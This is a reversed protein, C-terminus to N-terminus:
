RRRTNALLSAGGLFSVAAILLLWIGGGNEGGTDALVYIPKWEAYLTVSETLSALDAEDYHIGTGDPKTNWGVFKMGAIKLGGINGATPITGAGTTSPPAVGATAGNKNYTIKVIPAVAWEAYLTIDATLNYSYAVAYHSGQGDAQTNWGKFLFGAIALSGSNSRLTVTGNGTTAAPATGSTAGNADYTITFTPAWEAYLTIDATLNYSYAVAYNTGQGDAQTNWGQFTYGTKVLSGSNSRLTVSGNGTTVAPATGGTATNADYTITYTILTWEAYLTVDASLTYSGGLDYHVGTANAKTNWGTLTYGARVLTGTNTRLTVSGSGSTVTPETGGTHQNGDYTVLYSNLIWEAYLTADAQLNYSSSVAYHTGQGDAQTNWGQFTYGARVLTGTNARLTVAGNGTTAAPATGGTATNADYTITYINPTWEAYLTVNGTLSYSAGTAYHTGTGNAASNWGTFTYGVRTLTGSNSALTVTGNGTTDAPSTGGNASNPAYTITYTNLTWEAYLTVDGGLTYAAGASYSTGTGNALTNWGAFTYGAKVLTGSNTRLTVAGNGTTVAPVTGGTSGNGNYTITYTNPTWEAYLTVDATLSYSAGTAYHTGTGNALTNWGTLTYGTKALSGSNTALTVGGNGTTNAPNTGSTSGNGNYTITYNSVAASVVFTYEVTPAPAYTGNGGQVNRITCNGPGIITVVMGSVTCVSPSQSIMTVTLNSTATPSLTVTYSSGSYTKNGPNPATITQPTLASIPFTQTVPTAASYTSNGSQTAVITCSGSAVPTITTGSVTCVGPTLSTLTVPLGSDSVAGSAFAPTTPTKTGPNNFTIVQGQTSVLLSMTYASTSYTNGDFVKFQLSRDVSGTFRLNGNTIDAVNIEDNVAVAVWSGNVFKELAGATPLSTIQVKTFPNNDPDSYTGFDSLQIVSPESTTVYRTTNTSVPPQNSPNSVASAPTVGFVASLPKFAIGFYNPSATRDAGVKATFSTVSDFQVQVADQVRNSNNQCSTAYFRTTGVPVAPNTANTQVQLSSGTSLVYSQFSTFDSYQCYASAGSNGDLDISTVSVNRLVVPTGTGPGTYSGGEYFDFKFTAAGYAASVDTNVQFYDTNSSANGINDYNTITSSTLTTTVIADITIGGIATGTVNSYKIVAGNAATSAGSLLSGNSPYSFNFTSASADVSLAQAETAGTALNGLASLSVLSAALVARLASHRKARKAKSPVVLYRVFDAFKTSKQM